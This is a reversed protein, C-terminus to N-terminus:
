ILRMKRPIAEKTIEIIPSKVSEEIPRILRLNPKFTEVLNGDEIEDIYIWNLNDMLNFINPDNIFQKNIEEVFFAGALKQNPPAGFYYDDCMRCYEFEDNPSYELCEKRYITYSYNREGDIEALKTVSPKIGNLYLHKILGYQYPFGYQHNQKAANIVEYFYRSMIDMTKSKGLYYVDDVFLSEITYGGFLNEIYITNEGCYEVMKIEHDLMREKPFILDGRLKLVYDYEFNNEIEYERKYQISRMISYWQAPIISAINVGYIKDPFKSTEIAHNEVVFRKPSYVEKYKKLTESSVSEDKSMVRSGNYNKTSNKDWTHIFFDCIDLYKGLYRKINQSAEISTRVQGSICVAIRM